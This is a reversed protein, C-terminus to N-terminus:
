ASTEETVNKSSGSLKEDKEAAEIAHGFTREILNVPQKPTSLLKASIKKKTGPRKQKLLCCAKYKKGSGCPCPDNRGIKNKM